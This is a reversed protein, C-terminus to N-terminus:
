GSSRDSASARALSAWASGSGFPIPTCSTCTSGADAGAASGSSGAQGGRAVAIIARAHRRAVAAPVAGGRPEVVFATGGVRRNSWAIATGTLRPGGLRRAPLEAERAYRRHVTTADSRDSPLVVFGYPQHFWVSVDPRIRAIFRRVARTEPESSPRPGSHFRSGRVGIPRWDQPFNRNLDVGRANTRTGRALGDPNLSDIVWIQVGRISARRARLSRVIRLGGPEDGHM